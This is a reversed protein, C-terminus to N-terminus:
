DICLNRCMRGISLFGTSRNGNVCLFKTITKESTYVHMKITLMVERNMCCKKMYVTKSHRVDCVDTGFKLPCVYCFVVNVVDFKLYLKMMALQNIIM